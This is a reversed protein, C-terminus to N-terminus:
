QWKKKLWSFLSKKPKVIEEPEEAKEPEEATRIAASAAKDELELIKKEALAKLQQEQDLAKMAEALRNNLNEIQKNKIELDQRLIEVLKGSINNEKTNETNETSKTTNETSKATFNEGKGSVKETFNESNEAPHNELFQRKIQEIEQESLFIVEQGREMRKQPIINLRKIINKITTKSTNLEEALQKVTM